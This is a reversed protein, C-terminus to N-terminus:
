RSRRCTSRGGRLRRGRAGSRYERFEQMAVGGLPLHEGRGLLYAQQLANLPRDRSAAITLPQHLAGMDAAVAVALAIFREFLAQVWDAPLADLRVDWNVLLGGDVQAVQADLAVQPGQSIVWDMPGFVRGVRESFLEGGPLDLGATFVVPALQPTGHHRSLDRMLDVGPYASHALREVLQRHLDQCLAALSAVGTFDVDVLVLNAFEGVIRQVPELVPERWFVPVNLRLRRDGTHEGLATAFLGLLLASSTIRQARAAQQLARYQEPELRAAFRESRAPGPALLPLTPAPAIQALRARWWARDRSRADRLDADARVQDLWDFYSPTTPLVTEPTDYLRALDEMLVRFSSPDVAIMDTDVHLRAANGPLLSLGFRAGQGTSLDLRQHSWQRRRELLRREVAPGDLDSFDELELQPRLTEDISQRGQGDIRLKLMPHARYLGELAVELRAVDSAQGDFEAYLHASVGGLAAHADRGIWCAAQM